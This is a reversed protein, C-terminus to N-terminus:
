RQLRSIDVAESISRARPKSSDTVKLGCARKWKGEDWLDWVIFNIHPRNTMPNPLGHVLPEDRHCEGFTLLTEM